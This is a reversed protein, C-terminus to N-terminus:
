WIDGNIKANLMAKLFAEPNDKATQFAKKKRQIDEIELRYKPSNRVEERYEKVEEEMDAAKESLIQQLLEMEKLTFPFSGGHSNFSMM